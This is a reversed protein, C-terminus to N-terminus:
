ALHEPALTRVAKLEVILRNDVLMDAFYEGACFGDIDYVKLPVQRAVQYGAILLRHELAVEYVRELLGVGFYEHVKYAVQGVDAVLAKFDEIHNDIGM